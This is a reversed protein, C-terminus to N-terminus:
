ECQGLPAVLGGLELGSGAFGVCSQGGGCMGAGPVAGGDDDGAVGADSGDVGGASTECSRRCILDTQMWRSPPLRTPGFCSSGPNCDNVYMCADGDAVPMPNPAACVSLVGMGTDNLRLYCSTGSACGVQATPDCGDSDRCVEELATPNPVGSTCYQTASPCAVGVQGQFRGSECSLQCTYHNRVQPDQACYQGEGCPDVYVEDQLGEAKYPQTQGGFPDCPDGLHRAPVGEVCGAYITFQGADGARRIVIRCQQGAGCSSPAFRDCGPIPDGGTVQADRRHIFGGDDGADNPVGGDQKVQSGGHSSSCAALLLLAVGARAGELAQAKM